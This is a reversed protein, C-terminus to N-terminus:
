RRVSGLMQRDKRLSEQLVTVLEEELKVYREFAALSKADAMSKDDHRGMPLDRYGAMQQATTQLRAAINRYSRELRNYADYEKRANADTLDLAPMHAALNDALATLVGAMRAPVVSHEALGKGCTPPDDHDLKMDTM